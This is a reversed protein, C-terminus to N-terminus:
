FPIDYEWNECGVVITDSPPNAHFKKCFSDIRNFYLCNKCCQWIDKDIMKNQLKIRDKSFCIEQWTKDM